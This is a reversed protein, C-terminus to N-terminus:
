WPLFVHWVLPRQPECRPRRVFIDAIETESMKNSSERFAALIEHAAALQAEKNQTRIQSALYFLSIVVAGAGLIEGIAGVADWNM